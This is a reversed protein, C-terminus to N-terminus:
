GHEVSEGFADGLVLLGVLVKFGREFLDGVRDLVLNSIPSRLLHRTAELSRRGGVQVVKARRRRRVVAAEQHDHAPLCDRAFRSAAQWAEIIQNSSDIPGPCIDRTWANFGIM